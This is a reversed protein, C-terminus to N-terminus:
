KYIIRSLQPYFESSFSPSALIFLLQCFESCDDRDKQWCNLM